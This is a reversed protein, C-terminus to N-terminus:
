EEEEVSPRDTCAEPGGVHHKKTEKKDCLVSGTGPDRIHENFTRTENNQCTSTARGTRVHSLINQTKSRKERARGQSEVFLSVILRCRQSNTGEEM